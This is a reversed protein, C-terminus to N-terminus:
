RHHLGTGIWRALTAGCVRAPHGVARGYGTAAQLAAHRGPDLDGIDGPHGGASARVAPLLDDAQRLGATVTELSGPDGPAAANRLRGCPYHGEDRARRPLRWRRADLMTRSSGSSIAEASTTRRASAVASSCLVCRAATTWCLSGTAFRSATAMCRCLRARCRM